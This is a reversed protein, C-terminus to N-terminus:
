LRRMLRGGADAERMLRLRLGQMLRGGADAARMLRLRLLRM